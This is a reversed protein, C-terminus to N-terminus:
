KSAVPFINTLFSSYNLQFYDEVFQLAGKYDEIMKKAYEGVIHIQQVKNEYFQNWSKIIM